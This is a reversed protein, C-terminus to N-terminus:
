GVSVGGNVGSIESYGGAEALSVQGNIGSTEVTGDVVGSSVRGNVGRVVLQINKPTKLYVDQQIAGRWLRQLIGSGSRHGRIVLGDATQELTIGDKTDDVNHGIVAIE